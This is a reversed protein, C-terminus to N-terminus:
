LLCDLSFRFIVKIFRLGISLKEIKHLSGLFKVVNSTKAEMLKGLQLMMYSCETLNELGTYSTEFGTQYFM